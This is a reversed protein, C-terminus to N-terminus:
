EPETPFDQEANTQYGQSQGKGPAHMRGPCSITGVIRDHLISRSKQAFMALCPVITLILRTQLCCHRAVLVLVM